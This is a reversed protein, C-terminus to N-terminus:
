GSFTTQETNLLPSNRTMLPQSKPQLQQDADLDDDEDYSGAQDDDDDDVAADDDDDDDSDDALHSAMDRFSSSLRDASAAATSALETVTSTDFRARASSSTLFREEYKSMATLELLYVANRQLGKLSYKNPQQADILDTEVNTGSILGTEDGKLFFFFYVYSNNKAFNNTIILCM